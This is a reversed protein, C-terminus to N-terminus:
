PKEAVCGIVLATNVRFKDPTMGRVAGRIGSFWGPGKPYMPLKVGTKLVVRRMGRYWIPPSMNHGYMGVVRMGRSEVLRALNAASFETEWGAFWVGLWMMVHKLITYYHYKQPVDVLIIGGRKLVRVNEDLVDAPNRFHELLGQHYVVGFTGSVFPLKLADGCVVGITDSSTSHMLRLSEESYDLAVVRAGLAALAAADRGTGAGVELVDERGLDVHRALTDVIRRDTGYVDEVNRSAAWFSDWHKKDSARAM